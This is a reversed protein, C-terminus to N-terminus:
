EILGERTLRRLFTETAEEAGQRNADIQGLGALAQPLGTEALANKVSRLVANDSLPPRAACVVRQVLKPLRM